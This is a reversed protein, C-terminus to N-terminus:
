RELAELVSLAHKIKGFPASVQIGEVRDKIRRVMEKAITIGENLAEEKSKTKRMRELIEDPVSVGPVENNMFEANRLSVLPWVGAIVPIRV